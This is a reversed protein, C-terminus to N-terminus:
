HCLRSINIFLAGGIGGVGPFYSFCDHSFKLFKHNQLHKQIATTKQNFMPDSPTSPHKFLKRSTTRKKTVSNRATPLWPSGIRARFWPKPHPRNTGRVELSPGGGVRRFQLKQPGPSSLLLPLLQVFSRVRRMVGLPRRIKREFEM